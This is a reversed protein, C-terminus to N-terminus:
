AIQNIMSLELDNPNTVLKCISLIHEAKNSKLPNGISLTNRETLSLM